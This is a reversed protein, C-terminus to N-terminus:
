GEIGTFVVEWGALYGSDNIAVVLPNTQLANHVYLEPRLVYGGDYIVRMTGDGLELVYSQDSSFQFPIPRHIQAPTAVEGVHRLGPRSYAGGATALLVNRARRLASSYKGVDMRSALADGIEGSSFSPQNSPTTM